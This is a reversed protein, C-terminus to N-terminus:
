RFNITDLQKQLGRTHRKATGTSIPMRSFINRPSMTSM